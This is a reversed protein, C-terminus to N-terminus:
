NGPNWPVVPGGNRRIWMTQGNRLTLDAPSDSVYWQGNRMYRYAYNRSGRDRVYLRSGNPTVSVDLGAGNAAPPNTLGGSRTGGGWVVPTWGNVATNDTGYLEYGGSPPAPPAALEPVYGDAYVHFPISPTTGFSLMAVDGASLVVNSPSLGVLTAWVPGPSNLKFSNWGNTYWVRLVDDLSASSMLVEGLHGALTNTEPGSWGHEGIVINQWVNTDLAATRTQVVGWTGGSTGATSSGTRLYVADIWTDKEALVKFNAMEAHDSSYFGFGSAIRTYDSAAANGDEKMYLDFKNENYDLHVLFGIWKETTGGQMTVTAQTNSWTGADGGTGNMAWVKGDTSVYFVASCGSITDLDPEAMGAAKSYVQAWVNDYGSNVSLALEDFKLKVSRNGGGAPKYTTSFEVSEGAGVAWSSSLATGQEFGDTFPLSIAGTSSSVTLGCMIGILALVVSKSRM